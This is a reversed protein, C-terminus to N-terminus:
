GKLMSEYNYKRDVELIPVGRQLEDVMAEEKALIEEAAALVREVGEAPVIVVGNVDAM